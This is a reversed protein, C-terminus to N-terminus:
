TYYFNSIGTNGVNGIIPDKHSEEIYPVYLKMNAILDIIKVGKGFAFVILSIVHEKYGPTNNKPVLMIIDLIRNKKSKICGEGDQLELDQKGWWMYHMDRCLKVMKMHLIHQIASTLFNFNHSVSEM